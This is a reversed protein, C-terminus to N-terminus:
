KTGGKKNLTDQDIIKNALILNFDKRNKPLFEGITVETDKLGIGKKNRQKSIGSNVYENIDSKLNEKEFFQSINNEDPSINLGKFYGLLYSIKKNNSEKKIDTKNSVALKKLDKFGEKKKLDSINMKELFGLETLQITLKIENPKKWVKQSQNALLIVDNDAKWRPNFNFSFGSTSLGSLSRLNKIEQVITTAVTTTNVGKPEVEEEPIIILEPNVPDKIPISIPESVIQSAVYNIELRNLNNFSDWPVFTGSYVIKKISDEDVGVVYFLNFGTNYIKKLSQYQGIPVRFVVIGNELDNEASDRYINFSLDKSDSKIVMKLNELTTLDYPIEEVESENIIKFKIINDFPYLYIISQNNAIYNKTNNFYSQNSDVFYYDSSFLNFPLKELKLISKTGFPDTGTAPSNISKINIVEQKKSRKLEIKTLSKAYKSIDGTSLKQIGINLRPNYENGMKSGGGQLLGYSTKREIFTGDVNNILKSSNFDILANLINTSRAVGYVDFGKRLYFHRLLTSGLMVTAGLILIRKM